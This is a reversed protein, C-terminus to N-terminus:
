WPLRLPPEPERDSDPPRAVVIAEQGESPMEHPHDERVHFELENSTAYRLGCLPCTITRM